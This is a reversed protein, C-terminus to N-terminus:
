DGEFDARRVGLALAVAENAERLAQVPDPAQTIPRGMVM